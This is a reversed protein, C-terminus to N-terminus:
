PRYVIPLEQIVQLASIATTTGSCTRASPFSSWKTEGPQLELRQFGKLERLPRVVEGTIDRIYLQVTEIGTRTGTNTVEVSATLHQEATM